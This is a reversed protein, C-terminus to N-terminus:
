ITVFQITRQTKVETVTGGSLYTGFKRTDGISFSYSDLDVIYKMALIRLMSENTIQFERNNVETM